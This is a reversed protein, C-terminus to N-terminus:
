VGASVLQRPTPKGCFETVIQRIIEQRREAKLSRLRRICADASLDEPMLVPASDILESRFVSVSKPAEIGILAKKWCIDSVVVVIRDAVTAKEILISEGRNRSLILM